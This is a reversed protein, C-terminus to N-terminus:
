RTVYRHFLRRWWVASDRPHETRSSIGGVTGNLLLLIVWCCNSCQLTGGHLVFSNLPCWHRSFFSMDSTHPLLHSFIIFPGFALPLLHSLVSFDICLLTLSSFTLFLALPVSNQFLMWRTDKFQWGDNGTKLLFEESDRTEAGTQIIGYWGVSVNSLM